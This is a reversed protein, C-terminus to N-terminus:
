SVLTDDSLSEESSTPVKVWDDEVNEGQLRKQHKKRGTEILQDINRNSTMQLPEGLRKEWRRMVEVLGPYNVSLAYAQESAQAPCCWCASRKFGMAYGEWLPVGSKKVISEEVEYAIDHCPHYYTYNKM